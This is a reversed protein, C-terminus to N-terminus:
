YLYSLGCIIAQSDVGGNPREVSLNSYHRYRYGLSVSTNDNILYSIGGGAQDLFNWQTAQQNTHLTSYIFGTGGEFYPQIRQTLPFAYKLLVATGFEVNSGPSVIPDIFPEFDVQLTGAIDWNLWSALDYGFRVSLIVPEYDKTRDIENEGYGFGVLFGVENLHFTGDTGETNAKAIGSYIIFGFLVLIISIKAILRM